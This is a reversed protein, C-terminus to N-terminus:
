AGSPACKVLPAIPSFDWPTLNQDDYSQLETSLVDVIDALGAFRLERGVVLLLAVVVVALLLASRRPAGMNGYSVTLASQTGSAIPRASLM